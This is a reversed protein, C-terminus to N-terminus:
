LMDKHKWFYGNHQNVFIEDHDSVALLMQQYIKSFEESVELIGAFKLIMEAIYGDGSKVHCKGQSAEIGEAVGRQISGARCVTWYDWLETQTKIHFMWGYDLKMKPWSVKSIRPM